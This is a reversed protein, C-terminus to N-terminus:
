QGNAKDEQSDTLHKYTVSLHFAPFTECLLIFLIKFSFGSARLAPHGFAYLWFLISSLLFLIQCSQISPAFQSLVLFWSSSKSISSRLYM